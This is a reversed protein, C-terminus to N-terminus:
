VEFQLGDYTPYINRPLKKEWISTPGMLHSVHTFYARQPAIRKTMIIAEELSFHSHHPTPRLADLVLVDLESLEAITSNPIENTDTFYGFKGIRFGLIPLRGHTVRLPLITIDGITLKTNPVIEKVDFSPAGPYSHTTFAYEFRHKLDSLVREEGHIRIGKKNTFLLPRLDDLGIIHDNHEHTLLVADLSNVKADLMQSRFDPGVDIIIQTTESQILVSCRSRNDRPDDSTCTTCHCGIVPVGQSTGTGLITIKM